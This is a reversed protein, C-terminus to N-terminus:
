HAGSVPKKFLIIIHYALLVLVTSVFGLFALVGINFRIVFNPKIQDHVEFGLNIFRSRFDNDVEIRCNRCSIPSVFDYVYEKVAAEQKGNLWDHELTRSYKATDLTASVSDIYIESVGYFANRRWDPGARKAVFVLGYVAGQTLHIRGEKMPESFLADEEAHYWFFVPFNLILSILVAVKLFKDM